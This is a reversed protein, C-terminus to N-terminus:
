VLFGSLSSWPWRETTGCKIITNFKSCILVGSSMSSYVFHVQNLLQSALSADGITWALVFVMYLTISAISM